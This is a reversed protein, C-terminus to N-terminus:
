LWLAISLDNYPLGCIFPAHTVSRHEPLGNRKTNRSHGTFHIHNYYRHQVESPQLLIMENHYITYQKYLHMLRRGTIQGIFSIPDPNVILGNSLKQWYLDPNILIPNFPGQESKDFLFQLWLKCKRYVQMTWSQVKKELIELRCM